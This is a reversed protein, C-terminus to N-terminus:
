VIIPYWNEIGGITKILVEANSNTFGYSFTTHGLFHKFFGEFFNVLKPPNFKVHSASDPWTLVFLCVVLTHVFLVLRGKRNVNLTNPMQSNCPVVLPSLM